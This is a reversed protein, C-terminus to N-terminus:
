VVSMVADILFTIGTYIVSVGVVLVIGAIIVEQM